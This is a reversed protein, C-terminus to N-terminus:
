FIEPCWPRRRPASCRTPASSPARDCSRSAGRANAARSLGAASIPRASTPLTWGSSPRGAESSRAPGARQPLTWTGDNWNCFTTASTSRSAGDEAYERAELATAFTSCGCGSATSRRPPAAPAARDGLPLASPRPAPALRERRTVLDVGFLFRWIERTAQPSTGLAERMQLTGGPFGGEWNHSAAPVARVGPRGGTTRGSPASCRAAATAGTSPTPSAGDDDWWAQTRDLM